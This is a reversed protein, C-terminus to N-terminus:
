ALIDGTPHDRAWVGREMTEQAEWIALIRMKIWREDLSANFERAVRTASKRM